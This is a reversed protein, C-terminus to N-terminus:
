DNKQDELMRLNKVQFVPVVGFRNVIDYKAKIIIDLFYLRQNKESLSQFLIKDTLNSRTIVDVRTYDKINSHYRIFDNFDRTTKFYKIKKNDFIIIQSISQDTFYVDYAIKKILSKKIKLVENYFINDKM